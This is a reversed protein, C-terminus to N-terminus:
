VTLFLMMTVIGVSSISCIVAKRDGLSRRAMRNVLETRACFLKRCKACLCKLEIVHVCAAGDDMNHDFVALSKRASRGSHAGYTFSTDTSNEVFGHFTSFRGLGPWYMSVRICNVLIRWRRMVFQEGCKIDLPKSSNLWRRYRGCKSVSRMLSALLKPFSETVLNMMVM